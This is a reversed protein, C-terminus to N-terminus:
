RISRRENDDLDVCDLPMVGVTRLVPKENPGALNRLVRAIKTKIGFRAKVDVSSISSRTNSLM